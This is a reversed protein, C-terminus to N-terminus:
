PRGVPLGSLPAPRSRGVGLRTVTPGQSGFGPLGAARGPSGGPPLRWRRPSGVEKEGFVPDALVGHRCAVHLFVARAKTDALPQFIEKGLYRLVSSSFYVRALSIIVKPLFFFKFLILIGKRPNENLQKNTLHASAIVTLM